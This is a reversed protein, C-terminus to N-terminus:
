LEFATCPRVYGDDCKDYWTNVNGSDFDVSWSHWAGSKSSAWYVKKKMPTGGTMELAKNLETRFLFMAALQGATPIYLDADLEFTIGAKRLHETCSYMDFENLADIESKYFSSTDEPHSGDSFLPLKEGKLDEKAIIWKHGHYSVMVNCLKPSPVSKAGNFRVPMFGDEVLYVGDEIIPEFHKHKKPVKFTSWDRNEMSPFLLCEVGTNNTFAGNAKFHWELGDDIGICVIPFAGFDVNVTFLECVGCVPSYLKTGIPVNKLIEVLNLNENM